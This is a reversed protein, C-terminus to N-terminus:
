HLYKKLPPIFHSWIKLAMKKFFYHRGFLTGITVLIVSYIPTILTIYAIRYLWPGEKLSGELQLVDKLVPRCLVMTSSGTIAFVVCIIFWEIWWQLSYRPYDPRKALFRQWFTPQDPKSITSQYRVTRRKKLARFIKSFRKAFRHSTLLFKAGFLM